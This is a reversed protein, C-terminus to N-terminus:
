IPDEQALVARGRITLTPADINVAARGILNLSEGEIWAEGNTDVRVRLAPRGGVASTVTVDLPDDQPGGINVNVILDDPRSEAVREDHMTTNTRYEARYSVSREDRRWRVHGGPGLLEFNDFLTSVSNDVPSYLTRCTENSSVLVTGGSSCVVEAVNGDEAVARMAMSGPPLRRRDGLELGEYQRSPPVQFGIVFAMRGREGREPTALILCKDKTQPVCDYGSGNASIWPLVYSVDQFVTGNRSKASLLRNVESVGTVSCEYVRTTLGPM